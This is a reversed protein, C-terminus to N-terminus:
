CSGHSAEAELAACRCIRLRRGNKAAEPLAPCLDLGIEVPILVRWRLICPMSKIGANRRLALPATLPNVPDLSRGYASNATCWCGSAHHPQDLMIPLYM